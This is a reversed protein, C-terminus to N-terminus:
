PVIVAVTGLLLMVGLVILAGQWLSPEGEPREMPILPGHVATRRAETMPNTGTPHYRRM